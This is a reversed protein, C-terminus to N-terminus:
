STYETGGDYTDVYENSEEGSLLAEANLLAIGEQRAGEAQTETDHHTEEDKM